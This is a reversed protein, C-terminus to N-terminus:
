RNIFSTGVSNIITITAETMTFNQVRDPTGTPGIRQMPQSKGRHATDAPFPGDPGTKGNRTAPRHRASNAWAGLCIADM